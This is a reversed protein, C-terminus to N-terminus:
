KDNFEITIKKKKNNIALKVLHIAVKFDAPILCYATNVEVIDNFEIIIKRKGESIYKKVLYCAAEEDIPIICYISNDSVEGEKEKFFLDGTVIGEGEGEEQPTSGPEESFSHELPSTYESNDSDSESVFSTELYDSKRPEESPYQLVDKDLNDEPINLKECYEEFSEEPHLFPCKDGKYKCYERFICSPNFTERDHAFSCGYFNCKGYNIINKCFKRNAFRKNIDTRDVGSKNGTIYVDESFTVKKVRTKDCDGLPPPPVKTSINKIM